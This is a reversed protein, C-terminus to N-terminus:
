PPRNSWAQRDELFLEQLSDVMVARRNGRNTGRHVGRHVDRHVHLSSATAATGKERIQVLILLGNELLLDYQLVVALVHTTARGDVEIGGIGRIGEGEGNLAVLGQLLSHAVVPMEDELFAGLKDIQKNLVALLQLLSLEGASQQFLLATFQM